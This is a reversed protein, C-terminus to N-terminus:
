DFDVFQRQDGDLAVQPAGKGVQFDQGHQAIAAVGSDDGVRQRDGLGVGHEM